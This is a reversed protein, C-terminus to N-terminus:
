RVVSVLWGQIRLMNRYGVIASDALMHDAASPQEIGQL